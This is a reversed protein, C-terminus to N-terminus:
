ANFLFEKDNGSFCTLLHRYSSFYGASVQSGYENKVANTPNATCKDGKPCEFVNHSVHERIGNRGHVDRHEIRKVPM